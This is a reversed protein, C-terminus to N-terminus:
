AAPRTTTPAALHAAVSLHTALTAKDSNTGVQWGAVVVALDAQELGARLAERTALRMLEAEDRPVMAGPNLAAIGDKQLLAVLARDQEIWIWCAGHKARTAGRRQSAFQGWGWHLAPQLSRWRRRSTSAVQAFAEGVEAALAYGLGHRDGPRYDLRLTWPGAVSGEGAYIQTLRHRMLATMQPTSWLTPGAELPLVPLWASEIVIDIDDNTSCAAVEDRTLLAVLTEAMAAVANKAIGEHAACVFEEGQRIWFEARDRCLRLLPGSRRSLPWM